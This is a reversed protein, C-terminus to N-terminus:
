RWLVWRTAPTPCRRNGCVRRVGALSLRRWQLRLSFAGALSRCLPIRMLRDHTCESIIDCTLRLRELADPSFHSIYADLDSEAAAQRFGELFHSIDDSEAAYTLPTILFLPPALFRMLEIEMDCFRM